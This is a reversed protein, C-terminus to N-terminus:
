LPCLPSLKDRSLSIQPRVQPIQLSHYPTMYFHTWEWTQYNISIDASIREGGISATLQFVSDPVERYGPSRQMMNNPKWPHACSPLPSLFLSLSYSLSRWKFNQRKAVQWGLSFCFAALTDHVSCCWAIKELETFPDISVKLIVM